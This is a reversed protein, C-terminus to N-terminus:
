TKIVVFPSFESQVPLIFRYSFPNPIFKKIYEHKKVEDLVCAGKPLYKQMSPLQVKVSSEENIEVLM